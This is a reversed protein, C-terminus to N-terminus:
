EEFYEPHTYPNPFADEFDRIVRKGYFWLGIMCFGIVYFAIDFFDLEM